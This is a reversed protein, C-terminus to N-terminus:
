RTTRSEQLLLFMKVTFFLFLLITAYPERAAAFLCLTVAGIAMSVKSAINYLTQKNFYIFVLRAIGLGIILLFVVWHIVININPTHTNELLNVSYIYGGRPDGYIPLIIFAIALVDIIGSIINYIRIINSHNETQALTILEEGSLLEDLSVSTLNKGTRLRQLKENFEM